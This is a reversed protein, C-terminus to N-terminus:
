VSSISFFDQLSHVFKIVPQFGNHTLLYEIGDLGVIGQHNERVFNKMWMIVEEMDTASVTDDGPVNTLWKMTVGKIAPFRRALTKPNERTMLARPRRSGGILQFIREARPESILYSFGSEMQSDTTATVIREIEEAAAGLLSPQKKIPQKVVRKTARQPEEHLFSELDSDLPVGEDTQGSTDV